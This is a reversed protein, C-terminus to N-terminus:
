HIRLRLLSDAQERDARPGWLLGQPIRKTSFSDRQEYAKVGSKLSKLSHEAKTDMGPNM